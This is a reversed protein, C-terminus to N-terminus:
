IDDKPNKRLRKVKIWLSLLIMTEPISWWGRVGRAKYGTKDGLFNIKYNILVVQTFM